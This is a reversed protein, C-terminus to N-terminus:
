IFINKLIDLILNKIAMFGIKKWPIKLQSSKQNFSIKFVDFYIKKVQTLYLQLSEEKTDPNLEKLATMVKEEFM